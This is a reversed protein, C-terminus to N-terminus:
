QSRSAADPKPLRWDKEFRQFESDPLQVLIPSSETDLWRVLEELDGREMATCGATGSGDGKWIHLFICSGKGAIRPAVNHNVVVGLRYQEGIERMKESSNWDPNLVHSNDVISNYRISKVDDVCELADTVHLYPLKLWKMEEASAFGFASSLAFVGAPSKGDGEVKQPGASNTPHLGRGWALGGRGVVVAIPAGVAKWQTEVTKREFRQVTGAVNEWGSTKVVIMQRATQDWKLTGAATQSFAGTTVFILLATIFLEKRM